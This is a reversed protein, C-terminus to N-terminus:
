FNHIFQTTFQMGEVESIKAHLDKIPMDVMFFRQSKNVINPYTYRVNVGEVSNVKAQIDKLNEGEQFVYTFKVQIRDQGAIQDIVIGQEAFAELAVRFDHYRPTTIQHKGEDTSLEHRIQDQPKNSDLGKSELKAKFAKCAEVWADEFSKGSDYPTFSVTAPTVDPEGAESKMFHSLMIKSNIELVMYCMTWYDTWTRHKCGQYATRLEELAKHYDVNYFPMVNLEKVFGDYYQSAVKQFQTDNEVAKDSFISAITYPLMVLQVFWSFLKSFLMSLNTMVVVFLDMIFYNYFGNQPFLIESLSNHKRAAQLACYFIRNTEWAERLFLFHHLPKKQSLFDKLDESIEVNKWEPATMFSQYAPYTVPM